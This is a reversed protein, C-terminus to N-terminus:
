FEWGPAGPVGAGGSVALTSSVLLQGFAAGSAHSKTFGVVPISTGSGTATVKVTETLIGTDVLVMMGTTFSAGGSAVPIALTTGATIVANTVGTPAQTGFTWSWECRACRWTTGADISVMTAPCHCRPCTATSDLWFAAPTTM